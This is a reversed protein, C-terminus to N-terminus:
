NGICIETSGYGELSPLNNISMIVNIYSIDKFNCGNRTAYRNTERVIIELVENMGTVKKFINFLTSGHDLNVLVEVKLFCEKKTMLKEKDERKRKETKNTKKKKTKGKEQPVSGKKQNKNNKDYPAKVKKTITKDKIM